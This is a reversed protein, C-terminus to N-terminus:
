WKKSKLKIIKLLNEIFEESIETTNYPSDIYMPEAKEKSMIEEDENKYDIDVDEDDEEATLDESNLIDKITQLKQKNKFGGGFLNNLNNNNANNNFGFRNLRLLRSLIAIFFFSKAIAFIKFFLFAKFPLLLAKLVIFPLALIAFGGFLYKLGTFLVTTISAHKM